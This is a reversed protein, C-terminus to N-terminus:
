NNTEKSSGINKEVESGDLIDTMASEFEQCKGDFEYINASIEELKRVRLEISAIKKIVDSQLAFESKEGLRIEDDLGQM